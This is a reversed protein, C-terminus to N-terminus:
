EEAFSMCRRIVTGDVGRVDDYEYGLATDDIVGHRETAQQALDARILKSTLRDVRRKTRVWAPTAM